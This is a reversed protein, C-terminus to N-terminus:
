MSLLASVCLLAYCMCHINYVNVSVWVGMVDNYAALPILPWVEINSLKWLSKYVFQRDGKEKEREREREREGTFERDVM